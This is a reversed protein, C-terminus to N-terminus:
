IEQEKKLQMLILAIKHKVVAVTFPKILCFNIGCTKMLKGHEAQTYFGTMAIIPINKTEEMGRLAEAVQFGSKGRMKLDLIALDPKSKRAAKLASAGTTFTAAEYGELRLSEQLEDLFDEDDDVIMIKMQSM